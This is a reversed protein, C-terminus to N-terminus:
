KAPTELLEIRGDMTSVLIILRGKKQSAWVPNVLGIGVRHKWLSAGTHRDFAHLVGKESPILLIDGCISLASSGVDKGLGTEVQWLYKDSGLVPVDPIGSKISPSDPAIVGNVESLPIDAPFAFADGDMSKVYIYKGDESVAFSERGGDVVFLKEGSWANFCYTRRDPRVIFVRGGTKIPSCSGPALKPSKKESWAWLVAGSSPDLCFLRNGWTTFLVQDGDVYPAGDCFGRVGTWSWQPKGDRLRIARFTKDGGGVYVTKNFIAPSGVMPKPTSVQWRDEGSSADFAYIIGDTCPVVLINDSQAPTAFVKGPLQRTWLVKGTALSVCSVKGAATAFWANEGNCSFGSGINADEVLSWRVEVEPYGANDAYTMGPYNLPLGDTDYDLTDQVARLTSSYWPARTVAGRDGLRRESVTIEGNEGICVINYGPMGKRKFCCRGTVGPLGDYDRASNRHVHGSIALRCNLRLLERRVDYWNAMGPDLPYHNLFIVPKGPELSKMWNMSSRPVLAPAARMDPGCNCGLFRYGGAEFEFQEYGFVKVFTNCGSESWKSDHNGSVVWYPIRIDDLVRKADVLEEDKGFSTIDGGVLVFDLSDQANIDQICRILDNKNDKVGLHTDTVFAFRLAPHQAYLPFAALLLGIITFFRKM